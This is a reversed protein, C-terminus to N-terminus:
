EVEPAERERAVSRTAVVGAVVQDLEDRGALAGAFAALGLPSDEQDAPVPVIAAVPRGRRSVIVQEGESVRDLIEAFNRKTDAVGPM